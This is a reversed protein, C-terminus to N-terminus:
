KTPVILNDLNLSKLKHYIRKFTKKPKVIVQINPNGCVAKVFSIIDLDEKNKNFETINLYIVSLKSNKLDQALPIIYDSLNIFVKSVQNGVLDSELFEKITAKYINFNFYVIGDIKKFLSLLKNDYYIVNGCLTYYKLYRFIDLDPNKWYLWDLQKFADLKNFGPNTLIKGDKFTLAPKFFTKSLEESIEENMILDILSKIKSNEESSQNKKVKNFDFNLDM